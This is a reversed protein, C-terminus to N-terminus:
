PAADGSSSVGTNHTGQYEFAGIDVQEDGDLNGDVVRLYGDLDVTPINQFGAVTLDVDVIRNGSDICPSDSSLRLDGRATSAIAPDTRGGVFMPDADFNGLGGQMGSFRGSRTEGRVDCKNYYFSGGATICTLGAIAPSTSIETMPGFSQMGSLCGLTNNLEITENGINNYFICNDARVIGRAGIAAGVAFPKVKIQLSLLATCTGCNVWDAGEATVQNESFTCNVLRGQASSGVFLGGGFMPAKNGYFMCNVFDTRNSGELSVGGGARLTSWATNAAPATIQNGRFVTNSIRGRGDFFSVAGGHMEGTIAVRSLTNSEFTCGDITVVSNLGEGFIAGGRPVITLVGQARNNVFVCRELKLGANIVYIAGGAGIEVNNNSFTCDAFNVQGGTEVRVAGGEKQPASNTSNNVFFCNRITATCNIARLARSSSEDLAFGDLVANTLNNISVIASTSGGMRRLVTGNTLPDPNRQGLKTETGDFGGYVAVNSALNYPGASYTGAAVWIEAVDDSGTGNTNRTTAATVAAQLTPFATAWSTGGAGSGGTRVYLTVAQFKPFPDANDLLGDDDTDKRTPDTGNTREQADTRGDGDTDSRRPDSYARYSSTTADSHTVTVIWGGDLTTCTGLNVYRRASEQADTLGDNDTDASEDSSGYQQEQAALLGDGDEDKSLTMLIGDGARLVINEFFGVDQFENVFVKWFRPTVGAETQMDRVRTVTNGENGCPLSVFGTEWEGPGVTLDMVQAMRIGAFEGSSDRDVNTAVRYEEFRGDGFDISVRATQSRTFEEIFAFNIGDANELEFASPVISLSDPRAMFAKVRDANLETALAQIVGSSQGPALTIGDGIEPFLTALTSYEGPTTNMPNSSDNPVWQRVTYAANAVRVSINGVNKIEVGASMSGTAATESHTRSKEQSQTSSQESSSSSETSWENEWGATVEISTESSTDVGVSFSQSVTVSANVSNSRSQAKEQGTTFSAEFSTSTGEEEAYEIDLRMDVDDVIAFELQPMDALLPSRSDQDDLDRVGDGDTDDLSPSTAGARIAGREGPDGALQEATYLELGDFQSAVPPLTSGPTSPDPGRADGDSDVSVPSTDWRHVEEGDLLGDLDTDASNADTKYAFEEADNLGDGDTDFVTPDSNVSYRVIHAPTLGFGFFDVQIEYTILLESMNTRGDSDDDAGDDTAPALYEFSGPLGVTRDGGEVRGSLRVDVKAPTQSPIRATLMSESIYQVDSAEADGFMVKMGPTFGRGQILATAATDVGVVSPTIKAISLPGDQTQRPQDLDSSDVPSIGNNGCGPLAFSLAVLGIALQTMANASFRNM